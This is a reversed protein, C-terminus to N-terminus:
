EEMQDEARAAQVVKVKLKPLTLSPDEKLAIPAKVMHISQELEKVAAKMETAKNGKMRCYTGCLSSTFLLLNFPVDILHKLLINDLVPFYSRNLPPNHIFYPSIVMPEKVPHFM